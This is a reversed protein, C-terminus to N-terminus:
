RQWPEGTRVDPLREALQELLSKTEADPKEPPIVKVIALFDGPTKGKGPNIGQGRIRLRRGSAAGPPVKVEASGKLLPVDVTVGLSAEAITVPLDLEINLGDRKFYPHKGVHVTVILDGRPGSQTPEGEGRVRLKQEDEVGPPITIEVTREAGERRFRISEAGGKVATMFSIHIDHHLDQGKASRRRARGGGRRPGQGAQSASGGGFPGGFGAGRPGGSAGFIEEFISGLDEEAFGQSTARQRGAWPGGGGGFGFNGPEATGFRDYNARKKPDSLTEYAENVRNFREAADKAKNVDPHLERALKRYARRIDDDSADRKVGLIDYYDSAM